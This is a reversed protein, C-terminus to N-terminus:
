DQGVEPVMYVFGKKEIYSGWFESLPKQNIFGVGEGGGVFFFVDNM